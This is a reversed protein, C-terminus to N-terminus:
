KMNDLQITTTFTAEEREEEEVALDDEEEEVTPPRQGLPRPPIELRSDTVSRGKGYLPVLKEEEVLAKCLPCGRSRSRHHLWRYLCPWCFLHGCLTVVPDRALDYCINCEFDAAGNNSSNGSSSSAPKTSERFGSSM